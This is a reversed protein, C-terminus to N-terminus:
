NRRQEAYLGAGGGRANQAIYAVVSGPWIVPREGTRADQYVVAATAPNGCRAGNGIGLGSFGAGVVLVDLVGLPLKSAYSAHATTQEL